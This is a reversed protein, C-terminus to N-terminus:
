LSCKPGSRPKLEKEPDLPAFFDDVMQQTVEEITPPIWKPNQDKDILLARVGEIFNHGECSRYGLRYEMQLCEQLSLNAGLQLQKLTIKMSLPCLKKLSTLTEKSWDSGDKELRQFIEEMTPASFISDIKNLHPELSFKSGEPAKEYPRLVQSPNKIALLDKEIKPIEASPCYHTAFGVFFNDVGKLRYGSLALYIGLKGKLRSLFYSGGVDPFLGIATEPMASLTKETAVRYHGHVSLGLGGGMTIGDILAIYPITYTAILCNLMYETKFLDKGYDGGKASEITITRVDGGACFAKGGAGKAIVLKKEKEWRLLTEYGKQVMNLNVANLAKPRNLIMVGCDGADQAIVEDEAETSMARRQVSSQVSSLSLKQKLSSKAAHRVASSLKLCLNM